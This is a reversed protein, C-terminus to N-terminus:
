SPQDLHERHKRLMPLTRKAFERLEADQSDEAAKEFLSLAEDHAKVQIERYAHEFTEGDLNALQDLSEQHAADLKVALQLGKNGALRELEANAKVHDDLMLQAFDRTSGSVGKLLALNSSEVEFRGGQGAQELFRRDGTSLGMASAETPHAGATSVSVTGGSSRAGVSAHEEHSTSHCAGLCLAGLALMRLQM